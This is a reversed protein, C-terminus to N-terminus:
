KGACSSDKGPIIFPRVTRGIERSGQMIIFEYRAPEGPREPIVPILSSLKLTRPKM